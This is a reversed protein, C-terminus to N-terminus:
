TGSPLLHYIKRLIVTHNNFLDVHLVLCEIIHSGSPPVFLNYSYNGQILFSKM